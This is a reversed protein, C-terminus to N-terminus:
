FVIKIQAGAVWANKYTSAASPRMVYQLDPMVSIGRGFAFNYNAELVEEHTQVGPAGNSLPLSLSAEQRQLDTLDKSVRAYTFSLGARDNPRGPVLGKDLVGVFAFDQFLSNKPTNYVYGALGTLGQDTGPESRWLMQQALFYGGSRSSKSTPNLWENYGTNDYYAGLKYIGPLNSAGLATNFDVELPLNTGVTDSTSWDYGYKGGLNPNVEYAGARVSVTDTAKFGVNGGWTSAPFVTWGLNADLPRTACITLAMFDCGTPLTGFDNMVSIRGAKFDLRDGMLKQELYLYGLRGARNRYAYIEQANILNDGIYKESVNHGNRALIDAHISFGTLGAMKGGDLDLTLNEQGAYTGGHDKGGSFAYMPESLYSLGIDVGADHASTRFGGWDGFLTNAYPSADTSSNSDSSQAANAPGAALAFALLSASAVGALGNRSRPTTRM